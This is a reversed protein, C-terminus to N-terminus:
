VRSAAVGAIALSCRAASFIRNSASNCWLKVRKVPSIPSPSIKPPSTRRPQKVGRERLLYQHLRECEVALREWDAHFEAWIERDLDSAKRSRRPGSAVIAPDLSAINGCKGDAVAGPTRGLLKALEIVKKNKSDLQGFPTQCYFRFALMVQERSWNKGSFASLSVTPMDMVTVEKAALKSTMCQAVAVIMPVVAADAFLKYAQTDSVPIVFTDPLGMLRACERPTLRRPRKRPGQSVLIESGDKYYRASPHADRERGRGARLRFRQRRRPAQRRLEAPLDM